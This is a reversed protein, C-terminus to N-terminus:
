IHPIVVPCFLCSFNRQAPVSTQCPTVNIGISNQNRGRAYAGVECEPRGKEIYGLRRIVYHYGIGMWGREKHWLDIERASVDRNREGTHHIIITNIDRAHAVSCVALLLICILYKAFKRNLIRLRDAYREYSWWGYSYCECYKQFLYQYKGKAKM